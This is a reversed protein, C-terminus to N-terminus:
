TNLNELINALFPIFLDLEDSKKQRAFKRSTIHECATFKKRNKAYNDKIGKM